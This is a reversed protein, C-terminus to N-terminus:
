QRPGRRDRFWSAVRRFYFAAGAFAALLMQWILMGSGPDTYAAAQRETAFSLLMLLFLIRALNM